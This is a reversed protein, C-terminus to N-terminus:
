KKDSNLIEEHEDCIEDVVEEIYEGDVFDDKILSESKGNELKSVKIENENIYLNDKILKQYNKKRAAILNNASMLIYPSHTTIFIKSGTENIIKVILDFIRRQDKPFLHVEPEEIILLHPNKREMIEQLVLLIPFLEKQGSSIQSIDLSQNKQKFILKQTKEDKTVKGRMLSIYNENLIKFRRLYRRYDNSFIKLGRNGSSFNDNRRIPRNLRELRMEDFDSVFSRTAPIFILPLIGLKRYFEKEIDISNREKDDEMEELIKQLKDTKSYKNELEKLDEKIMQIERNKFSEILERKTSRILKGLEDSFVIDVDRDYISGGIEQRFKTLQDIKLEISLNDNYFYKLNYNEYNPFYDNILVNIDERAYRDIIATRQNLLIDIFDEDNFLAVANALLSKGSASEGIVLNIKKVEFNEIKEISGLNYISIRHNQM